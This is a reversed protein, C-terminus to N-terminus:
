GENERRPSLVGISIRKGTYVQEACLDTEQDLFDHEASAKEKAPFV